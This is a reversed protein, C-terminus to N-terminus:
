GPEAREVAEGEREGGTAPGAVRGPRGGGAAGGAGV